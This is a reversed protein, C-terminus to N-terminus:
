RTDALLTRTLAAHLRILDERTMPIMVADDGNGVEMSRTGADGVSWDFYSGDDCQVQDCDDQVAALTELLMNRTM